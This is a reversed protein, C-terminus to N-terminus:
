FPEEGASVPAPDNSEVEGTGSCRYCPRQIPCGAAYCGDEEANCGDGHDAYWGEGACNSCRM